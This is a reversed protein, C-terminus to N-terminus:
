LSADVKWCQVQPCSVRGATAYSVDTGEPDFVFHHAQAGALDSVRGTSGNYPPHQRM